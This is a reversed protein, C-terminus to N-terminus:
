RLGYLPNPEFPQVIGGRKPFVGKVYPGLIGGPFAVEQQEPYPSKAGLANNVDVGYSANIVYICGGAAGGAAASAYAITLM